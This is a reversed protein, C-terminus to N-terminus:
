RERNGARSSMDGVGTSARGSLLLPLTALTLAGLAIFGASFSSLEALYGIASPIVGAGLLSGAVTVLSVALNRFRPPFITSIMSFAAPFFWGASTSQLFVLVATAVRGHVVGLLLTLTGTIALFVALAMRYGVRDVLLGSFFIVVIGPIRSLGVITNALEREMRIENVLFLPMMSYVGLTSGVGVSFLSALVWVSPDRVIQIVTAFSPLESRHGVGRGLVLFCIGMLITLAAPVTLVGRWPLLRLLAEALLPASIYGLNPALEHIALAKGWHERPVEATLTAIGSPLYLGAAAGFLLLGARMGALTTSRSLILLLVGPTLSSLLITRRHNLRWSVFGSGLLGACYGLQILLFLSGAEGHTLALERELLPLLPSFIVRATFNLYFIGTLFLVPVIPFPLTKRANPPVVDDPVDTPM